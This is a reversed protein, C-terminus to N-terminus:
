PVCGKAVCEKRYQAACRIAYKLANGDGFAIMSDYQYERSASDPDLLAMIETAQTLAKEIRALQLMPLVSAGTATQEDDHALRRNRWAELPKATRQLAFTRKRIDAEASATLRGKASERVAALSLSTRKAQKPGGTPPDFLKCIRLVVDQLLVDQLLVFFDRAVSNMLGQWERAEDPKSPDATFLQKWVKWRWHVDAVRFQLIEFASPKRKRPTNTGM